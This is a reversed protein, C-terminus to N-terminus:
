PFLKLDREEADLRGGADFAANPLPHSAELAKSLVDDPEPHRDVHRMLLVPFPREEGHAEVQTGSIFLQRHAADVAVIVRMFVHESGDAIREIREGPLEVLVDLPLAVAGLCVPPRIFRRSAAQQRILPPLGHAVLAHFPLRSASAASVWAM